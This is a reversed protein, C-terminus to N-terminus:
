NIRVENDWTVFMEKYACISSHHLQLLGMAQMSYIFFYQHFFGVYEM